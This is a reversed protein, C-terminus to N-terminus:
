LHLLHFGAWDEAAEKSTEPNEGSGRQQGKRGRRGGERGGVEQGGGTWRRLPFLHYYCLLHNVTPAM